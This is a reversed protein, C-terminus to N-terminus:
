QKQQRRKNDEEHIFRKAKSLMGKMDELCKEVYTEIQMGSIEGKRAKQINSCLEKLVNVYAPFIYDNPFKELYSNMNSLCKEINEDSAISFFHIFPALTHQNVAFTLNSLVTATHLYHIAKEYNHLNTLYSSIVLNYMGIIPKGFNQYDKLMKEANDIDGIQIYARMISFAPYASLKYDFDTFLIKLLKEVASIHGNFSLAVVADDYMDKAVSCGYAFMNKLYYVIQDVQADICYRRIIILFTIRDPNITYESPPYLQNMATNYSKQLPSEKDLISKMLRDADKLNSRSVLMNLLPNIITVFQKAQKVLPSIKVKNQSLYILETLAVEVLKFAQNVMNQRIYTKILINFIQLSSHIHPKLLTLPNSTNFHSEGNFTFAKSHICLSFLEEVKEIEGVTAYSQIAYGFVKSINEWQKESKISSEIKLLHELFNEFVPIADTHMGKTYFLEITLLYRLVTMKLNHETVFASFGQLDENIRYYTLVADEVMTRNIGLRKYRNDELLYLAIDKSINRMMKTPLFLAQYMLEPKLVNKPDDNNEFQEKIFPLLEESLTKCLLAFQKEEPMNDFSDSNLLRQNRRNMFFLFTDKLKRDTTYAYNKSSIINTLFPVVLPDDSFSDYIQRVRESKQQMIKTKKIEVLFGGKTDEDKTKVPVSTSYNKKSVDNLVKMGFDLNSMVMSSHRKQINGDSSQGKRFINSKIITQHHNFYHGSFRESRSSSSFLTSELSSSVRRKM